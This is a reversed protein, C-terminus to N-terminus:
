FYHLIPVFIDLFFTKLILFWFGLVVPTDHRVFAVVWVLFIPMAMAVNINSADSSDRCILFLVASFSVLFLLMICEERAAVLLKKTDKIFWTKFSPLHNTIKMLKRKLSSQQLLLM